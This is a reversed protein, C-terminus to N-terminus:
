EDPRAGCRVVVVSTCRNHTHYQKLYLLIPIAYNTDPEMSVSMTIQFICEMACSYSVVGGRQLGDQAQEVANGVM